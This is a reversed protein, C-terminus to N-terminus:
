ECSWSSEGHLTGLLSQRGFSNITDVRIMRERSISISVSQGASRVHKADSVQADCGCTMRGGRLLRRGSKVKREDKVVVAVVIAM